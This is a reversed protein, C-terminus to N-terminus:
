GGGGGKELRVLVGNVYSFLNALTVQDSNFQIPVARM